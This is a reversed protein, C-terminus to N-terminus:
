ASFVFAAQEARAASGTEAANLHRCEVLSAVSDRLLLQLNATLVALV